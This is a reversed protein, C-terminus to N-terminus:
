LKSSKKNKGVGLKSIKIMIANNGAKSKTQWINGYGYITVHM